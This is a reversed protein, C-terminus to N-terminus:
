LKISYAALLDIGWPYQKYDTYAKMFSRRYQLGLDLSGPGLALAVGAAADLGFHFAKFDDDFDSTDSGTTSGEKWSETEQGVYFDMRPGAMLFLGLTDGLPYDFRALVPISIVNFSMKLWDDNDKGSKFSNRSYNLGGQISFMDTFGARCFGGISFGFGFMNKDNEDDLSDKWDEGTYANHGLDIGGGLTLDLAYLGLSGAMFCLVMMGAKKM